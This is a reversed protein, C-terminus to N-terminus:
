QAFVADLERELRGRLERLTQPSPRHAEGWLEERPLWWVPGPTPTDNERRPYLHWHLHADGMGLLEYNMKQAGFANFAAQAVQSMEMLFTNRFDPPLDFLEPVHRKCLFLTYGFIRQHDGLVVYGTSLERVFYPNEGRTIAEIRACVLCSM